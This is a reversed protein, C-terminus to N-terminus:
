REFDLQLYESDRDGIIAVMISALIIPLSNKCSWRHKTHISQFLANGKAM